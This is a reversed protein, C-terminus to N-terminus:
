RGAEGNRQDHPIRARMHGKPNRADAHSQGGADEKQAPLPVGTNRRGRAIPLRTYNLNRCIGQAMMNQAPTIQTKCM